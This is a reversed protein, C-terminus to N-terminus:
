LLKLRRLSEVLNHIVFTDQVIYDQAGARFAELVDNPEDDRSLMMIPIHCTDPNERLSRCLPYSEDHLADISLLIADAQRFLTTLGTAHVNDVVDVTLGYSQLEAWIRQARDPNNEVLLIHHAMAHEVLQERMM